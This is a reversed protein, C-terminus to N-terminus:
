DRLMPPIRLGTRLARAAAAPLDAASLALLAADLAEAVRDASVGLEAAIAPVSTTGDVVLGLVRLELPGLARQDGPPSLLVAAVLHDLHPVACQVATVRVLLESEVGTAALFSTRPGGAALEREAAVLVRSGRALLRDERLGPLPLVDGGRTLVVGAAAAEVVRATEAIEGARDLGDAVLSSVVAVIRRDRSDLGQEDDSLLSLFGVHRGGSTFLGVALGSRFGAPLLHEGWAKLEPLPVPIDSTLMPGRERNLGLQEVETDAEPTRFYRRLPDASGVTALPTHCRREPDRVALWGADFPLVRRLADLVQAARVDAPAPEAAVHQMEVRLASM